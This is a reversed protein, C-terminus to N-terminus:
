PGGRTRSPRAPPTVRGAAGPMSSPRLPPPLPLAGPEGRWGDIAFPLASACLASGPLARFMAGGDQALAQPLPRVAACAVGSACLTSEARASTKDALWRTLARALADDDDSEAAGVTRALARRQHDENVAVAVHGDAAPWLRSLPAGSAAHNGRSTGSAHGNHVGSAASHMLSWAGDLLSAEVLAGQGSRERRLLAALVAMAANAGTAYDVVPAGTKTPGSAETGTLAMLGSAAQVVHDYAPWDARPGRRGYGSVACWVLRPHRARYAQPDLQLRALSGPRFNEIVVDAEAVLADFRQRGAPAALDLLEVQKGGAQAVYDTSLGQRGLAANDRQRWRISDGTPPAEIRRVEAGMLALLYAAYPGAIVRSADLVRVGALPLARGDAPSSL